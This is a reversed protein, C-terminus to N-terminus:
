IMKGRFNKPLKLAFWPGAFKIAKKKTKVQKQVSFHADASMIVRLSDSRRKRLSFITIRNLLFDLQKRSVKPLCDLDPTALRECVMRWTKLM